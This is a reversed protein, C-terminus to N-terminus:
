LGVETSFVPIRQLSHLPSSPIQDKSDLSLNALGQWFCCPSDQRYNQEDHWFPRAVQKMLIKM